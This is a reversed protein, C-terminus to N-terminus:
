PPRGPRGVCVRYRFQTCLNSAKPRLSEEFIPGARPAGGGGKGGYLAIIGQLFLTDATKPWRPLGERRLVRGAEAFKGIDCYIKVVDICAAQSPKGSRLALEMQEAAKDPLRVGKFAKALQAHADGVDPAAAAAAFLEKLALDGKGQSQATAAAQFHKEWEAYQRGQRGWRVERYIGAALLFIVAPLFM